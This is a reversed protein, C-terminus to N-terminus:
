RRRLVSYPPLKLCKRYLGGEDRSIEIVLNEKEKGAMKALLKTTIYNTSKSGLTINSLSRLGEFSDCINGLPNGSLILTKLNQHETLPWEKLDNNGIDLYTLNSSLFYSESM